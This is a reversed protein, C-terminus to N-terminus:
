SFVDEGAPSIKEPSTRAIYEKIKRRDAADIQTFEIGMGTGPDVRRVMGQVVITGIDGLGLKLQVPQGRLLPRQDLLYLGSQSLDRVHPSPAVYEVYVVDNTVRPDLRRDRERPDPSM